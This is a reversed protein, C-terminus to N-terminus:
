EVVGPGREQFQELEKTKRRGLTPFLTFFLVSVIKSSSINACFIRVFILLFICFNAFISLFVVFNHLFACFQAVFQTFIWFILM